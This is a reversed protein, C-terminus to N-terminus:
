AGVQGERQLSESFMVFTVLQKKLSKFCNVFALGDM